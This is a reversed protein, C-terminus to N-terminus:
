LPQAGVMLAKAPYPTGAMLAGQPSVGSSDAALRETVRGQILSKPSSLRCKVPSPLVLDVHLFCLEALIGPLHELHSPLAWPHGSGRGGRRWLPSLLATFM